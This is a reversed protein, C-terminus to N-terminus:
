YYFYEFSLYVSASSNVTPTVKISYNKPTGDVVSVLKYLYNFKDESLVIEQDVNKRNIFFSSILTGGSADNNTNIDM